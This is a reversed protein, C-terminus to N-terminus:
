LIIGNPILSIMTFVFIDIKFIYIDGTRDIEIKRGWISFDDKGEAGRQKERGNKRFSCFKLFLKESRPRIDPFSVLEM